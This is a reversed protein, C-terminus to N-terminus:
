HNDCFKQVIVDTLEAAFAGTAEDIESYDHHNTAIEVLEKNYSRRKKNAFVERFKQFVHKLSFSSGFYLEYAVQTSIIVITLQFVNFLYTVLEESSLPLVIIITVIMVMIGLFFFSFFFLLCFAQTNIHKKEVKDITLCCCDYREDKMESGMFSEDSASKCAPKNTVVTSSEKEAPKSDLHETKANASSESMHKHESRSNVIVLPIDNEYVHNDSNSKVKKELCSCTIHIRAYHKYCKRFSLYFYVTLIYFLILITTCKSPETLWALLIYGIHSAFSLLPSILMASFMLAIVDNDSLRTVKELTNKGIIIAILSNKLWESASCTIDCKCCVKFYNKGNYAFVYVICFLLPITFLSDCALTGFVIYLNLPTGTIDNAYEHNGSAVVYCALIDFVLVGISVLIGCLSMAVLIGHKSPHTFSKIADDHVNRIFIIFILLFIFPLLITLCVIIFDFKENGSYFINELEEACVARAFTNVREINGPTTFKAYVNVQVYFIFSNIKVSYAHSSYIILM